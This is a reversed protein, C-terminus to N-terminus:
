VAAALTSSDARQCSIWALLLPVSTRRSLLVVEDKRPEVEYLGAFRAVDDFSRRDDDGGFSQVALLAFAAGFRNAEILASAARHLLQYRIAELDAEELLLHERLAALRLPKRSKTNRDRLWESATRDLPEGAKAEVAMSVFSHSTRLLAWLDNQSAHGGGELPVQHEPLGIVLQAGRTEPMSDLVRAVDDPIGRASTRAAEWSVALEYASRGRRWHKGPDALLRRWDSPGMSPLYLGNM